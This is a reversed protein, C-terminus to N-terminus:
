TTQFSAASKFRKKKALEKQRKMKEEYKKKKRFEGFFDEDDKDEDEYESEGGGYWPKQSVTSFGSGKKGDITDKVAIKADERQRRLKRSIM